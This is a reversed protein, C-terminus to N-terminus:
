RRMAPQCPTLPSWRGPAVELAAEIGRAEDASLAPAEENIASDSSFMAGFVIAATLM